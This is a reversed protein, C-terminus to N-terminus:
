FLYAGSIRDDEIEVIIHEELTTAVPLGVYDAQIPFAKHTREVLVLTQIKRPHFDLFPKLAYLMTKGSSAVDDILVVTRDNFDMETSLVVEGPHKKDLSVEVLQVQQGSIIRLEAALLRAVVFGNERIGAFVLEHEDYNREAIEFALRRLKLAATDQDLIYQKNM